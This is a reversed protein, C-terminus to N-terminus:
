FHASEVDIAVVGRHAIRRVLIACAQV